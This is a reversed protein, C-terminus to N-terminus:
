QNQLDKYSSYTFGLDSIDNKFEQSLTISLDRAREYNLSSSELVSQDNYGPHLLLETTEGDKVSKLETLFEQSIQTANSGLIHAFLHDTMKVNLRDLYVEASYNNDSIEDSTLVARPIRMPINNAIVYKSLIKLLRFNGHMNYQPAIFDPKKGLLDEFIKIEKMVVKEIEDDSASHFFEIFTDRNPRKTKGWKFLCTHLGVNSINNEKLLQLGHDLDEQDTLVMMAIDTVIGEKYSRIIGENVSKTWGYDDAVVILKKM